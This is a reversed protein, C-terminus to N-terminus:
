GEVRVVVEVLMFEEDDGVHLLLVEGVFDTTVIGATECIRLDGTVLAQSTVSM